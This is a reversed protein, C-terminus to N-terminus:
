KKESLETHLDLYERGCPDGVSGDTTWKWERSSRHWENNSTGHLCLRTAYSTSRWRFSSFSKLSPFTSQSSGRQKRAETVQQCLLEFEMDLEANIHFQCVDRLECARHRITQGLWGYLDRVRNEYILIIKGQTTHDPNYLLANSVILDIDQTFQKVSSYGHKDVKELMISFTMPKEIVEYYDPVDEVDIPRSFYTFRKDRLLVKLMDRLFVRLETMTAEERLKVRELEQETRERSAPMSEAIELVELVPEIWLSSLLIRTSLNLDTNGAISSSSSVSAFM